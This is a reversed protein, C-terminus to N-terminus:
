VHARGIQEDGHVVEGPRVNELQVDGVMWLQFHEALDNSLVREIRADVVLDINEGGQAVDNQGRLDDPSFEVVGFGLLVIVVAPLTLLAAVQETAITAFRGIM